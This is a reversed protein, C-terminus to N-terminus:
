PVPEARAGSLTVRSGQRAAPPQEAALWPQASPPVDVLWHLSQAGKGKVDVIGRSAIKVAPCQARLLAAAEDSLTVKDPASNSEMRSATNVTDGFMCFRPNTTGVVTAVIPGCHLGARVHLYGAKPDSPDVLVQQAAAVVDLAFAAVRACHDGGQDQILNGTVLYADGITENKFLGHKQCLGDFVTYLRDLMNAVSLPQMRAALETFSCVDAFFVTVCDHLQPEM